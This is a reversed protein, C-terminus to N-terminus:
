EVQSHSVVVDEVGVSILPASLERDYIQGVLVCQIVEQRGETTRVIHRRPCVRSRYTKVELEFTPSLVCAPAEERKMVENVTVGFSDIAHTVPTM